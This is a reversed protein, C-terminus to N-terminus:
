VLGKILELLYGLNAYHHDDNEEGVCEYKKVYIYKNSFEKIEEFKGATDFEKQYIDIRFDVDKMLKSVDYGLRKMLYYCFGVMLVGKPKKKLTKFSNLFILTGISKAFVFYEENCESVLKVFRETELDINTEKEELSWHEYYIIETNPFEKQFEKEVDEIWEKNGISQGPLLFVKM